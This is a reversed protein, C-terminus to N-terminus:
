KSLVRIGPIKKEQMNELMRRVIDKISNMSMAFYLDIFLIKISFQFILQIDGFRKRRSM